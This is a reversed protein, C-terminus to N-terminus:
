RDIEYDDDDISNDIETDQTNLLAKKRTLEALVYDALLNDFLDCNQTCHATDLATYYEVKRDSKIYVAPYQNKLLELNMLLRSTRGNGDIFPHIGVFDIHVRSARIVPHLNQADTQYWQIFHQMQAAVEFAQPPKHEAGAILVNVTRYKGANEDDINKLILQHISKVTQETLPINQKVLDEIFFIAENHNIVEFHERLSKGGITIGELVVKTEMLTLTNGEIANSHYTFNLRFDDDFSQCSKEPLGSVQSKLEDIQQLKDQLNM